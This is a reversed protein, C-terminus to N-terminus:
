IVRYKQLVEYSNLIHAFIHEIIVNAFVRSFRSIVYRNAYAKYVTIHTRYLTICLFFGEFNYFQIDNM